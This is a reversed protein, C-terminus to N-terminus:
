RSAANSICPRASPGSIPPFQVVAGNNPRVVTPDEGVCVGAEAACLLHPGAHVADKRDSILLKAQNTRM